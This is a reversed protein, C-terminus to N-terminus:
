DKSEENQVRALIKSATSNPNDLRNLIAILLHENLVHDIYKVDMEFGKKVKNITRKVGIAQAMAAVGFSVYKPVIYKDEQFTFYLGLIIAINVPALCFLSISKTLNLQLECLACRAKIVRAFDLIKGEFDIPLLSTEEGEIQNTLVEKVL